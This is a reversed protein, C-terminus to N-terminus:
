DIVGVDNIVIQQTGNPATLTVTSPTTTGKLKSFVVESPGSYSVLGPSWTTRIDSAQNRTAYTKGEFVTVTGTIAEIYVGHRSGAVGIIAKTRADTLAQKLAEATKALESRYQFDGLLRLTIITFIPILALIVILEIFTFGASRM